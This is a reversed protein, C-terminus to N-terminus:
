KPDPFYGVGVNKLKNNEAPSFTSGYTYVVELKPLADLVQFNRITFGNLTLIELNVLSKLPEIDITNGNGTGYGYMSYHDSDTGYLRLVYLNSLPALFDLSTVSAPINLGEISQLNRLHALEQINLINADKPLTLHELSRLNRIGVLDITNFLQLNLSKLGAMGALDSMSLLSSYMVTLHELGTLGLLLTFGGQYDNAFNIGLIRIQDSKEIRNLSTIRCEYFVIEKLSPLGSFDPIENLQAYSIRLETLKNLSKLPSFDIGSIDPWFSDDEGEITPQKIRLRTLNTLLEIGELSNSSKKDWPHLLLQFNTIRDLESLKYNYRFGGIYLYEDTSANEPDANNETGVVTVAMGNNQANKGV